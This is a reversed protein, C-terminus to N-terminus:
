TSLTRNVAESDRSCFIFEILIRKMENRLHFGDFYNDDYSNFESIFELDIVSAREVLFTRLRERYTDIGLPETVLTFLSIHMPPIVFVLEIGNASCYDIIEELL